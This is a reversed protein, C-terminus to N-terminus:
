EYKIVQVKEHKLRYISDTTFIKEILDTKLLEGDAITNECHTVYLYIDGAGREKLAKASHYFTGGKSCIDDVILISKGSLDSPLGFIDLSLISGSTWDRDKVGFGYRLNFGLPAYRKMAGEDPFFLYDPHIEDIVDCIYDKPTFIILRDILAEAVYSHPDLVIVKNFNLSNIVEAFYKLTFVDKTDKVRDMRANPIYPMFLNIAVNGVIISDLHKKLYILTVLEEDNDYKWDITIASSDVLDFKWSQTHDPFHNVYIKIGNVSLM